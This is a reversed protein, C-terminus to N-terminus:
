LESRRDISEAEGAGAALLAAEYQARRRARGPTSFGQILLYVIYVQLVVAICVGLWIAMLPYVAEGFHITIGLHLGAVAALAQYLTKRNM